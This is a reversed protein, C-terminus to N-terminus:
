LEVFLLLIVQFTNTELIYPIIAPISIIYM